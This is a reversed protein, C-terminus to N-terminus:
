TPQVFYMFGRTYRTTQFYPSWMNSMSRAPSKPRLCEIHPVWPWIVSCIRVFKGVFSENFCTWSLYRTGSFQMKGHKKWSKAGAAANKLVARGSLTRCELNWDSVIYSDTCTKQMQVLIRRHIYIYVCMCWATKGLFIPLNWWKHAHLLSFCPEFVSTQLHFPPGLWSLQGTQPREKAFPFIAGRRIQALTM